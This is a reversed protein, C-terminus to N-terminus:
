EDYFESSAPVYDKWGMIQNRRICAELFSGECSDLLEEYYESDEREMVDFRNPDEGKRIISIQSCDNDRVRWIEWSGTFLYASDPILKM